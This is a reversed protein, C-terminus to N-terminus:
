RGWSIPAEVKAMGAGVAEWEKTTMQVGQLDSRPVTFYSGNLLRCLDRTFGLFVLHMVDFPSCDPISIASLSAFPSISTVGMVNTQKASTPANMNQQRDRKYSEFTPREAPRPPYYNMSHNTTITKKSQVKSKTYRFLTGQLNCARCPYIANHGSLHLLKSIAPTDGTVLVLHAKLTFELKTLSDYAKVGTQLEHLEERFPTIFSDLDKPAKPGPTLGLPLLNEHKSSYM